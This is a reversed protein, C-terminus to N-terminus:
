PRRARRRLLLWVLLWPIGAGGIGYVVYMWPAIRAPLGTVFPFLVLNLTAFIAYAVALPLAFGRGTWVGAALVIMAGGLVFTLPSDPPYLRGLAVIGSGTGLPKLLNGVGRFGLLVSLIRLV